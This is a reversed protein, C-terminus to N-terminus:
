LLTSVGIQITIPKSDLKKYIDSFPIVLGGSVQVWSFDYSAHGLVGWVTSNTVSSADLEKSFSSDFGSLSVTGKVKSSGIFDLYAGGAFSWKDVQQKVLVPLRLGSQSVSEEASILFGQSSVTTSHTYSSVFIAPAVTLALGTENLPTDYSGSLTLTGGSYRQGGITLAGAGYSAGVGFPGAAVVNGAMGALLGALLLGRSVM